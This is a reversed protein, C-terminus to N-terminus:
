LPSDAMLVNAILQRRSEVNNGVAAKLRPPPVPPCWEADVILGPPVMVFLTAVPPAAPVLKAAGPVLAEPVASEPPPLAM